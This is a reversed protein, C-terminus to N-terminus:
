INFILDFAISIRDGNTNNQAVDHTLNSPFLIMRGEVPLYSISGHYSYQEKFKDVRYEIDLSDSIHQKFNVSGCDPTTKIYFIGSYHCMPHAHAVNYCGQGSINIWWRDIRFNCGEKLAMQENISRIVMEKLREMFSTMKPNDELSYKPQSQWGGVNSYTAGIRDRSMEEYCCEILETKYNSYQDDDCIIIQKPFIFESFVKMM